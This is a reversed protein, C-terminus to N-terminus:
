SRVLQFRKGPHKHRLRKKEQSHASRSLLCEIYNVGFVAKQKLFRPSVDQFYTSAKERDFINVQKTNNQLKNKFKLLFTYTFIKLMKQFIRYHSESQLIGPHM